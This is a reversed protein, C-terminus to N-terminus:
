HRRYIRAGQSKACPGADTHVLRRRRSWKSPQQPRRADARRAAARHGRDLPRELRDEKRKQRAARCLSRSASPGLLPQAVAAHSALRPREDGTACRRRPLRQFPHRDLASARSGANVQARVTRQRADVRESEAATAATRSQALGPADSRDSAEGARTCFGRQLPHRRFDPLRYIADAVVNETSRVNPRM